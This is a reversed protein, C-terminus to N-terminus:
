IKQGNEDGNSLLFLRRYQIGRNIVKAKIETTVWVGTPGTFVKTGLKMRLLRNISHWQVAICGYNGAKSVYVYRIGQARAIRMQNKLRKTIVM